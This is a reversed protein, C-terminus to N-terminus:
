ELSDDPKSGNDNDKSLNDDIKRLFDRHGPLDELLWKEVTLIPSKDKMKAFIKTDDKPPHSGLLLEEVTNKGTLRIVAAPRKLGFSKVDELGEKEFSSAQSITFMRVLSNVRSSDVEFAPDDKFKWLGENKELVWKESDREITLGKVQEFPISFLSKDRFHFLSKDLSEKASENVLFIKKDQGRSTYYGDGSPNKDGFLITGSENKTFLNIKLSPNDLGYQSLDGPNENILRSYSLNTLDQMFSEVAFNEAGTEVPDAIVWKDKGQQTNRVLVIREDGRELSIREVDNLGATILLKANEELRRKEAGQHRDYFFLGAAISAAILYIVTSKYKM